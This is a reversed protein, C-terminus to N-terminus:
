PKFVDRREQEKRNANENKKDQRSLLEMYLRYANLELYPLNEHTQLQKYDEDIGADIWIGDCTLQRSKGGGRWAGKLELSEATKKTFEDVSNWKLDNFYFVKIKMIRGDFIELYIRSTGKIEPYGIGNVIIVGDPRSRNIVYNMPYNANNVILVKALGFENASPIPFDKYKARIEEVSMLLRFGRMEPAQEPTLTCPQSCAFQFVWLLLFFLYIAPKFNM